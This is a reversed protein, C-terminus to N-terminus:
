VLPNQKFLFFYECFVSAKMPVKRIRDAIFCHNLYVRRKITKFKM